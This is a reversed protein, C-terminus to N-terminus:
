TLFLFIKKEFNKYIEKIIIIDQIIYNIISFLLIHYNMEDKKKSLIPTFGELAKSTLSMYHPLLTVLWHM